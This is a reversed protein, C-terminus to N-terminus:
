RRASREQKETDNGPGGALKDKGAGGFLQDRGPGGRLRDM